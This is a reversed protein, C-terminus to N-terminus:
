KFVRKVDKSFWLYYGIIGNLVLSIISSFDAGFLSTLASIFGIVAFIVAVIRAWNQGFWLGRGIFFYLVALALLFIGMFVAVGAGLAAWAGMGMTSMITSMAGMGVFALLGILLLLVAGIYYLVSIIKVGTPMEKGRKVNMVPKAVLKRTTRRVRRRAM